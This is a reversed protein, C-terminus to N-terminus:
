RPSYNALEEVAIDAIWNITAPSVTFANALISFALTEGDRTRVHRASPASV